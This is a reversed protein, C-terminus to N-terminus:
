AAAGRASGSDAAQAEPAQAEPAQAGQARAPGADWPYLVPPLALCVLCALVRLLRHRMM